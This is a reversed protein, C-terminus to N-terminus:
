PDLADDLRAAVHEVDAGAVEVVKQRSREGQVIRVSSRPVGVLKAIFRVIADNAAGDVPPSAVQLKVADGQRGVVRDRSARPQAHVPFRVGGAVARVLEGLIGVDFGGREAQEDLDRTRRLSGAKM